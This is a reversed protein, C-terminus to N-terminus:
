GGVHGVRVTHATANTCLTRYGGRIGIPINSCPNQLRTKVEVEINLPHVRSSSCDAASADRLRNAGYKEALSCVTRHDLLAGIIQKRAALDAWADSGVSVIICFSQPCEQNHEKGGSGPNATCDSGAAGIHDLLSSTSWACPQFNPVLGVKSELLRMQTFDQQARAPETRQADYRALVADLTAQYAEERLWLTPDDGNWSHSLAWLRDSLGQAAVPGVSFVTMALAVGLSFFIRM